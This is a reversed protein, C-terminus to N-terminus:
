GPDHQARYMADVRLHAVDVVLFSLIWQFLNLFFYLLFGFVLISWGARLGQDGFFVWNM